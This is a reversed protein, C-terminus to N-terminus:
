RPEASRRRRRAAVAAAALVIAGFASAPRSGAACGGSSEDGASAAVCLGQAVDCVSSVCDATTACSKGCAGNPQCRYPACDQRAGTEVNVSTDGECRSTMRVCSKTSADCAFGPQCDGDDACATGCAKGDAACAHGGCDVAPSEACGGKGDCTARPTLKGSACSAARCETESGVYAKCALPDKGDCTAGKCIEGGSDCAPRAGHPAGSIARCKGKNGDGDPVDCAECQGDCRSDCCVGDVCFGSGCEADLTCAFGQKVKCQGESGAIACSLGKAPDCEEKSENCCTGTTGSANPVCWLGDECPSSASPDCPNGLGSVPVCAGSASCTFGAICDEKKTCTTVCATAGCVFPACTRKVDGCNGAGDCSAVHGEVGATCSAAGCATSATPYVCEDPTFGDCRAACAPDTAIASCSARGGRPAGTVNSCTGVSGAVDCAQCQGTCSSNCCVGDVCMGTGCEAHAGCPQGLAKTCTGRAAPAPGACTKGAGCSAAGGSACCYGDVCGLGSGCPSSASCPSGQTGSSVCQGAANCALEGKGGCDASTVCSTKCGAGACGYVGCAIPTASCNGLGNCAGKAQYTWYGSSPDQVCADSGCAVASGVYAHCADMSTGNCTRQSCSNTATELPCTGHGPAPSGTVPVCSGSSGCVGCIGCNASNCCRGDTCRGSTCQSGSTCTSGLPKLVVCNGNGDCTAPSECYGVWIKGDCQTCNYKNTTGDVCAKTALEPEDIESAPVAADLAGAGADPASTSCGLSTLVSLSVFCALARVSM